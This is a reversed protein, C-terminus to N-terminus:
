YIETAEATEALYFIRQKTAAIGRPKEQPRSPERAKM